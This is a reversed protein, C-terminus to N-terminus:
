KKSYMKTKCYLSGPISINSMRKAWPIYKFLLSCTTISSKNLRITEKSVTNQKQSKKTAQKNYGAKSSKITM